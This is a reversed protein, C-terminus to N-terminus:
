AVAVAGLVGLPPLPEALPLPTPGRPTPAMVPAPRQLAARLVLRLRGLRGFLRPQHPLEPGVECGIHRHVAPQQQEVDHRADLGRPEEERCDTPSDPECGLVALQPRRAVAHPVHEVARGSRVRERYGALRLGHCGQRRCQGGLGRSALVALQRSLDLLHAAIVSGDDPQDLAQRLTLARHQRLDHGGHIPQRLPGHLQGASQGRHIAVHVVCRESLEILPDLLQLSRRRAGVALAPQVEEFTLANCQSLQDLATALDLRLELRADDRDLVNAEVQQAEPRRAHM